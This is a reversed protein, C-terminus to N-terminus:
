SVIQIEFKAGLLQFVYMNQSIEWQLPNQYTLCFIRLQLSVTCYFHCFAVLLNYTWFHSVDKCPSPWYRHMACVTLFIQCIESYKFSSAIVFSLTVYLKTLYLSITQWKTVFLYDINDNTLNEQSSHMCPVFRPLCYVLRDNHLHTIHINNNITCAEKQAHQLLPSHNQCFLCCMKLVIPVRFILTIKKM